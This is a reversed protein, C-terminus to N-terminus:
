TRLFKSIIKKELFVISDGSALKFIARKYRSKKGKFKGIRRKKVPLLSTNVSIVKVNFLTELALKLSFKDSKSDVAFSYHKEQELLRIAKPTVLPYKIIELFDRKTFQNYPM